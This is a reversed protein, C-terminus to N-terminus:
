CPWLTVPSELKMARVTVIITIIRLSVATKPCFLIALYCIDSLNFIRLVTKLAIVQFGLKKFDRAHSQRKSAIPNPDPESDFAIKRLNLIDKVTAQPLIFCWFLTLCHHIPQRYHICMRWTLSISLIFYCTIKNQANDHTIMALTMQIWQICVVRAIIVGSTLFRKFLVLKSIGTRTRVTENM